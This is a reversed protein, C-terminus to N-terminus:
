AHQSTQPTGYDVSEGPRDVPGAHYKCIKSKPKACNGKEKTM